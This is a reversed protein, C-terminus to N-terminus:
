VNEELKLIRLRYAANEVAHDNHVIDPADELSRIESAGGECRVEVSTAIYAPSITLISVESLDISRLTRKRIGNEGPEFCPAMDEFGFSWGTLNGARAERVTEEDTIDAEAFLGVADEKLRLNGQSVSGIDRGHNLKIAVDKRQELSRAFVGSEAREVFPGDRNWLVKSDREVANVYGSIHATQGRIEIRM